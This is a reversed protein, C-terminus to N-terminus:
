SVRYRIQGGLLETVTAFRYGRARLGDIIAPLAELTQGRPGGGDHSLVISGPRTQSLVISRIASSGPLRWDFPDVDWIITRMGSQAAGAIVADNRAGGPPRFSCPRFGTVSQITASTQHLDAASPYLDHKWSHSAIEHGEGVIQRALDPYTAVQQGLVFFTAPVKKERLVKLFGATYTSPGDDFTLAVIKSSRPGNTVLGATGTTCGVPKIAKIELKRWGSNAPVSEACGRQNPPCLRAILRWDYSGPALSASVTPLSVVVRTSRPRKLHAPVESSRIARGAANSITIGVKGNAGMRGGLCIRRHGHRPGATFRFCLYRSANPSGSPLRNLKSLNIPTKSDAVLVLSRGKQVASAAILVRPHRPPPKAPRDPARNGEQKHGGSRPQDAEARSTFTQAPSLLIGTALLALTLIFPFKRSPTPM